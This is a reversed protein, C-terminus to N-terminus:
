TSPDRVNGCVADITMVPVITTAKRSPNPSPWRQFPHAPDIVGFRAIESRTARAITEPIPTNAQVM